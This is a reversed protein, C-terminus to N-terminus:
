SYLEEMFSFGKNRVGTRYHLLVLGAVGASCSRFALFLKQNPCSSRCCPAAFFSSLPALHVYQTANNPTCGLLDLSTTRM